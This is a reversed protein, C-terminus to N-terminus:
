SVRYAAWPTFSDAKTADWRRGFRGVRVVRVTQVVAAAVATAM